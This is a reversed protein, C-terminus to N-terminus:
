GRLLHGGFRILGGSTSKRTEKCGAYDTDTWVEVGRTSRQYEYKIIYRERGILYKALRKLRGWDKVRPQCQGRSLETIAFRIDLRDQSLYNGMAVASRYREAEEKDLRNEDDVEDKENTPKVGLTIVSKKNSVGLEDTIIEAHRQDPEYEIGSDTWTLVRNLIQVSKDDNPEPGLRAKFKVTFKASFQGRLWDLEGTYGLCTFDDGHVVVRM